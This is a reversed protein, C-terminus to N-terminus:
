RRRKTALVHRFAVQDAEHREKQRRRHRTVGTSEAAADLKGTAEHALSLLDPAGIDIVGFRALRDIAGALRWPQRNLRASLERRTLSNGPAKRLECVILGALQGLGSRRFATHDM